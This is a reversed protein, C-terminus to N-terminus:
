DPADEYERPDPDLVYILIGSAVLVEQTSRVRKEKPAEEVQAQAGGAV